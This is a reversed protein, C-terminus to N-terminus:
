FANCSELIAKISESSIQEEGRSLASPIQCGHQSSNWVREDYRQCASAASSAWFSEWEERESTNREIGSARFDESLGGSRCKTAILNEFTVNSLSVFILNCFSCCHKKYRSSQSLLTSAKKYNPSLRLM